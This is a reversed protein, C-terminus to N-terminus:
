MEWSFQGFMKKSFDRRIYKQFIGEPTSSPSGKMYIHTAKKKGKAWGTLVNGLYVVRYTPDYDTINATRRKWFSMKAINKGVRSLSFLNLFIEIIIKPRMQWSKSLGHWHLNIEEHEMIITKLICFSLVFIPLNSATKCIGVLKTHWNFTGILAFTLKVKWQKVNEFVKVREYKWEKANGSKQEKLSESKWMKM